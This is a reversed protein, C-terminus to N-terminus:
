DHTVSGLLVSKLRDSEHIAETHIAQRRLTTRELASAIQDCFVTFLQIYPDSAPSGFPAAVREAALARVREPGAIGLAGVTRQSTRLPVFFFSLVAGQSAWRPVISTGVARGHELVWAALAAHERVELRLERALASQEPAVSRAVPLGQADPLVLVCATVGAPAFVQAVRRALADLLLDQDTTAATLQALDYLAETRERSEIAEAARARAAAALAGIVLAVTLLAGLSVWQTQDNVTLRYLPPIFLFDYTLIALLSAAAAPWRGYSLALWVVVLLYVLSINETHIIRRIGAIGLSALMIGMVAVLYGEWWPVPRETTRASHWRTALSRIRASAVAVGRQVRPALSASPRALGGFVKRVAMLRRGGIGHDVALTRANIPQPTWPRLM